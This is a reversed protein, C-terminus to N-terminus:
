GRARRSSLDQRQEGGAPPGRRQGTDDRPPRTVRQWAQLTFAIVASGDPGGRLRWTRALSPEAHPRAPQSSPETHERRHSFRAVKGPFRRKSAPAFEREEHGNRGRGGWHREQGDRQRGMKIDQEQGDNEGKTKLWSDGNGGREDGSSEFVSPDPQCMRFLPGM